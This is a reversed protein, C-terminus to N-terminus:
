QQDAITGANCHIELDVWAVWRRGELNYGQGTENAVQLTFPDPSAQSVDIEMSQVCLADYFSEAYSLFAEESNDDASARYSIRVIGTYSSSRTGANNVESCEILVNPLPATDVGESTLNTGGRSLGCTVSNVVPSELSIIWAKFARQTMQPIKM